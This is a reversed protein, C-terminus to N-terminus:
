GQAKLEPSSFIKESLRKKLATLVYTEISMASINM